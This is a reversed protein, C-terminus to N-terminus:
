VTVTRCLYNQVLFTPVITRIEVTVPKAFKSICFRNDEDVYGVHVHDGQFHVCSPDRTGFPSLSITTLVSGDGVSLLHLVATGLSAVFVITGDTCISWPYFIGAIQQKDVQWRM